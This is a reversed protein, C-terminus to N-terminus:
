AKRIRGTVKSPDHWNRTGLVTQERRVPEPEESFSYAYYSECVELEEDHPTTTKTLRAFVKLWAM